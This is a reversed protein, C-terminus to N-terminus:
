MTADRKRKLSTPPSSLMPKEPLEAAPRPTEGRQSAVIKRVSYNPACWDHGLRWQTGLVPSYGLGRAMWQELFAGSYTMGDSAIVADQGLPQGTGACLLGPPPAGSAVARTYRQLLINPTLAKSALPMNTFPSRSSRKLWESIAERNFSHGDVTCVATTLPDFSIPCRTLLPDVAAVAAPKEGEAVEAVEVLAAVQTPTLGLPGSPGANEYPVFQLLQKPCGAAMLCSVLHSGYADPGILSALDIGLNETLVRLAGASAEVGLPPAQASKSTQFLMARAAEKPDAGLEGVLVEIVKPHGNHAALEIPTRGSPGLAALSVPNSRGLLRVVEAFGLAAAITLPTWGNVSVTTADAGQALLIAVVAPHNMCCAISLPTAGKSNSLDVRAGGVECLLWVTDAFGNAAAEYLATAGTRDVLDVAEPCHELLLEVLLNHRHRCAIHLATCGDADGLGVDAGHDLLLRTMEYDAMHVAQHLPTCKSAKPGAEVCAKAELLVQACDYAGVMVCAGLPSVGNGAAVNVDAGRGVLAAVVALQRRHCALYLATAGSRDTRDIEGRPLHALLISM